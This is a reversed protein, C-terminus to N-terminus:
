GTVAGDDLLEALHVARTSLGKARLGGGIQMLSSSDCAAVAGAGTRGIDDVKDALM